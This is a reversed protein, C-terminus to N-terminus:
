DIWLIKMKLPTISVLSFLNLWFLHLNILSKKNSVKMRSPVLFGQPHFNVKKSCIAGSLVTKLYERRNKNLEM